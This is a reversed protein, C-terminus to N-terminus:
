LYCHAMGQSQIPVVGGHQIHPTLLPGESIPTVSCVAFFLWQIMESFENPQKVPDYSFKHEKDYHQALYQLIAASEFVVFNDRARDVLTPIKGNPNLKIFWPQRQVGKPLDFKEFSGCPSNTLCPHHYSLSVRIRIRLCGRTGRSVCVSQSWQPYRCYVLNATQNSFDHQYYNSAGLARFTKM